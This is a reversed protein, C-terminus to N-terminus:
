LHIEFGCHICYNLKYHKGFLDTYGPITRWKTDDYEHECQKYVDLILKRYHNNIQKVKERQETKLLRVQERITTM